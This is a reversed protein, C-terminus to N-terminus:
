GFAEKFIRRFDDVSCTVPNNQHCADAVAVEVLRDQHKRDVGAVALNTPIGVEAKLDRLWSLFGRPSTDRLGIAVAMTEFRAAAGSQNHALAFDIMVGNALGHHMDAVTGLAHACSHTVGLGKQFAIAGMMSSMLMDGRAALDKGNKVATRLSKAAIRLGELAIGDCIPHYGKALYSEV